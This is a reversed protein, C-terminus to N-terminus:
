ILEEKFLEEVKMREKPKKVWLGGQRNIYVPENEKTRGQNKFFSIYVKDKGEVIAKMCHGLFWKAELSVSLYKEEKEM